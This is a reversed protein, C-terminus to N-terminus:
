VFDKIEDATLGLTTVLDDFVQLADQYATMLDSFTMQVGGLHAVAHRNAYVSAWATYANTATVADNFDKHYNGGFRKLTKGIDTIDFRRAFYKVSGTAFEKLHADINRACRREFMAPMRLEWEACIRILLFQVLVFEAETTWTNTADLHDKCVKIQYDISAFQM